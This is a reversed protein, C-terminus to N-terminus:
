WPEHQQQHQHQQQQKSNWLLPRIQFAPPHRSLNEWRMSCTSYHGTSRKIRIKDSNSPALAIEPAVHVAAAAAVVADGATPSTTRAFAAEDVEVVAAVVAGAAEIGAAVAVPVTTDEVAAAAVADAEEV